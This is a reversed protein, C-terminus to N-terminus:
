LLSPMASADDRGLVQKWLLTEEKQHNREPRGLLPAYM